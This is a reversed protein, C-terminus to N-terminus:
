ATGLCSQPMVPQFAHLGQFHSFGGYPITHAGLPQTIFTIPFLLWVCHCDSGSNLYRRTLDSPSKSFFTRGCLVTPCCALMTRDEPYDLLCSLITDCQTYRMLHLATHCWLFSTVPILNMSKRLCSNWVHVVDESNGLDKRPLWQHQQCM